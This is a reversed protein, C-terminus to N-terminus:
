SRDLASRASAMTDEFEVLRPLGVTHFLELLHPPVSAMILRGGRDQVARAVQLVAGIGASNVFDVQEMDMLVQPADKEGLADRIRSLLHDRDEWDINGSCSVVLRRGHEWTSEM